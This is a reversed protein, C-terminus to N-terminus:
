LSFTKSVLLQRRALYLLRAVGMVPLLYYAIFEVPYERPDALPFSSFFGILGCIGVALMARTLQNGEPTSVERTVRYLARVLGCLGTVGAVVLIMPWLAGWPMNGGPARPGANGFYFSILETTWSPFLVVGLLLLFSVPGFCVLAELYLLWRKSPKLM